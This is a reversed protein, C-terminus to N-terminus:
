VVFVSVLIHIPYQPSYKQIRAMSTMALDSSVTGGSGGSSLLDCIDFLLEEDPIIV